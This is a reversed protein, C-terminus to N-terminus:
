RFKWNLAVGAYGNRGPGPEFYRGGLANLRVNATYSEDTVNSIGVFPSVDLNGIETDYGFRLNLLTYDDILATNANDGFQEDIYLADAAAFWGRPHRYSVEGYLVNESTGPIVNGSAAGFSKFKFDSYAYSLTTRLYDTPTAIWSFELGKRGSEAANEYYNRGPSGPVEFPVLEDDVDITFLAIEYRQNDGIAGRLGVEFNRAAQPELNPNFGGTLDPKNLETTTPTEFSTSYTTYFNMNDGIDV